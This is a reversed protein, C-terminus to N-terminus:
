KGNTEDEYCTVILIIVGITLAVDAINFIPWYKFDVYDIVHGFILRDTLNGLSEGVILATSLSVWKNKFYKAQYIYYYMIVCVVIFIFLALLYNNDRFLGFAAGTNEVYHFYSYEPRIVNVYYKVLQDFFYILFVIGFFKKHKM